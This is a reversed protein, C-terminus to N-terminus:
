LGEGGRDNYDEESLIKEAEERSWNTRNVHEGIALTPMKQVRSSNAKDWEDFARADRATDAPGCVFSKDEPPNLMKHLSWPEKDTM